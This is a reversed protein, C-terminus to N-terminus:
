NKWPIQPINDKVFNKAVNKAIAPKLTDCFKQDLKLHNWLLKAQFPFSFRNTTEPNIQGTSASRLSDNRKKGQLIKDMPDIENRILSWATNLIQKAAMQNVSLLNLKDM